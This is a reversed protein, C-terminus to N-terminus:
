PNCVTQDATRECSSCVDVGFFKGEVCEYRKNKNEDSAGLESGCYLDTETKTACLRDGDPDVPAPDVTTGSCADASWEVKFLNISKEGLNFGFASLKGDFDGQAGAVLDCSVDAEAGSADKASAALRAYAGVKVSSTAAGFLKISMTADLRCDGNFRGDASYTFSPTGTLSHDLSNNWSGDYTATATASGSVAVGGEAHAEGGTNKLSCTAEIKLSASSSVNLPGLKVNPLGKPSGQFLTVPQGGILKAYSADIQGGAAAVVDATVTLAADLDGEAKLTFGGGGFLTKLVDVKYSLTPTFDFHGEKIAIKGNVSAVGSTGTVEEAFSYLDRPTLAYHFKKSVSGENQTATGGAENFDVGAQDISFSGQAVADTLVAPATMVVLNDGDRAVSTVRVLFGEPNKTGPLDSRAGVLVKGPVVSAVADESGKVPLIIRDAQVDASQEWAPTAPLADKTLVVETSGAPGSAPGVDPPSSDGSSCALAPLAITFYSILAIRRSM